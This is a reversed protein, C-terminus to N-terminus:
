SSAVAAELGAPFSRCHRFRILCVGDGEVLFREKFAVILVREPDVCALRIALVIREDAHFPKALEEGPDQGIMRVRVALDLADERVAIVDDEVAMSVAQRVIRAAFGDNIDEPQFAALHDLVPIHDLRDRFRRRVVVRHESGSVDFAAAIRSDLGSASRAM